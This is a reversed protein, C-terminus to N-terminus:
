NFSGSPHQVQRFAQNNVTCLKVVPYGLSELMNIRAVVGERKLMLFHSPQLSLLLRFARFWYELIIYSKLNTHNTVGWSFLRKIGPNPLNSLPWPPYLCVQIWHFSLSSPLSFFNYICIVLQLWFVNPINWNHIKQNFTLNFQIPIFM